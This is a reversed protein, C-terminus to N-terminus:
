SHHEPPYNSHEGLYKQYFEQLIRSFVDCSSHFLDRRTLDPYVPIFNVEEKNFRIALTRISLYIPIICEEAVWFGMGEAIEADESPLLKVIWSKLRHEDM